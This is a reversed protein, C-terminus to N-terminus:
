SSLWEVAKDISSLVRYGIHKSTAIHQFLTANAESYNGPVCAIKSINPINSHFAAFDAVKLVDEMSTSVLLNKEDLLVNNCNSSKCAENLNKYLNIIETDSRQTGTATVLLYNGCNEVSFQFPKIEM